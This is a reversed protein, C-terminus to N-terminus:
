VIGNREETAGEGQRENGLSEVARGFGSMVRGESSERGFDFCERYVVEDEEIIVFSRENLFSERSDSLCTSSEVEGDSGREGPDVDRITTLQLFECSGDVVVWGESVADSPDGDVEIQVLM